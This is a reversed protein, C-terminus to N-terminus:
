NEEFLQNQTTLNYMRKKINICYKRVKEIAVWKRGLKHAMKCTTGSGSMPDIVLDGPNTWSIIHDRPLKEPFTAPQAAAIRDRTAIHGGAAYSWINGIVKMKKAEFRATGSTMAGGEFAAASKRTAYDWVKNKDFFKTPKMIPNWTKVKGKSFVFMFDFEQTYRPARMPLPTIKRYIMTDHLNLGIDLFHLAQRFSNGSETGDKTQDGVVWVLVGGKKLSYKIANAVGEFDFEYKHDKKRKKDEKDFYSRLKDYPPSTVILNAKNKFQHLVQICNAHYLQGTNCSWYPDVPKYKTGPRKRRKIKKM